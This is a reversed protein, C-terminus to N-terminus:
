TRSNSSKCSADNDIGAVVKIGPKQLGHTLGGMECFMDIAVCKNGMKIGKELDGFGEM